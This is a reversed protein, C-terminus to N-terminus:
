RGSARIKWTEYAPNSIQPIDSVKDVDTETKQLSPSAPEYDDGNSSQQNKLLRDSDGADGERKRIFCHGVYYLILYSYVM